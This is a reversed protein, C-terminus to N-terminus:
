CLYGIANTLMLTTPWGDTNYKRRLWGDELYWKTLGHEQLRARVEEESYVKVAKESMAAAGKSRRGAAKPFKGAGRRTSPNVRVARAARGAGARLGTQRLAQGCGTAPFVAPLVVAQGAGPM